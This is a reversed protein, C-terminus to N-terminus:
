RFACEIEANIARDCSLADFYRSLEHEGEELFSQFRVHRFEEIPEVMRPVM